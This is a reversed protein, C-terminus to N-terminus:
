YVSIKGTITNMNKGSLKYLYIGSGLEEKSIVISSLGKVNAKKVIRGDLSLILLSEVQDTGGFDLTGSETIPNPYLSVPYLFQKNISNYDIGEFEPDTYFIQGNQLIQVLHYQSADLPNIQITYLLGQNSGIGEIWNHGYYHEGGECNVDFWLTKRISGDIVNDEIEFVAENFELLYEDGDYPFMDCESLSFDYILYETDTGEGLLYLPWTDVDYFSLYYWKGNGDERIGGFCDGEIPFGIHNCAIIKHYVKDNVLTDGKIGLQFYTTDTMLSRYYHIWATNEMPLPEWIDQYGYYWEAGVPALEPKQARAESIVSLLLILVLNTWPWSHHAFIRTKTRM